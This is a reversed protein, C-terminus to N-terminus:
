IGSSIVTGSLSSMPANSWAITSSNEQSPYRERSDNNRQPRSVFEDEERTVQSLISAVEKVVGADGGNVILENLRVAIHNIIQQKTM